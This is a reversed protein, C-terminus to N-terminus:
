CFGMLFKAAPMVRIGTQKDTYDKRGTLTVLFRNPVDLKDGFFALTGLGDAESLKCEVLLWPKKEWVILFDVERKERDRVFFLEVKLGFLDQQLHCYKLLHSAIMNEFRPGEQAIESWDWLYYKTEKKLARELRKHYPPVSFLYYNRLLIELWNKLTKDSIELDVSLSSLSLPSSVRSPLMEALLEMKSFQQINEIARIDERFLREFREKQWRKLTREQGSLLPEPFGGLHFLAEINKGTKDFTLIPAHKSFTRLPPKSNELEFLSFPHLRYYHYRGLLSDGGRRFIDLRSSGTVLIKQQAERTDWIGKIQSKWGHSKHIEDFVLFETEEPWVMDLIRRRHDRRDWNLYISHKFHQTINRALTTKGVQRPGGLFVMKKQLDELIYPELHRTKLLDM